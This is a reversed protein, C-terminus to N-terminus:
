GNSALLEPQEQRVRSMFEDFRREAEPLHTALFDTWDYDGEVAHCLSLHMVRNNLLECDDKRWLWLIQYDPFFAVVSADSRKGFFENM